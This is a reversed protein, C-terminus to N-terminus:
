PVYILPDDAGRFGAGQRGDPGQATLEAINGDATKEIIVGGHNQPVALIGAPFREFLDGPGLADPGALQDHAPMVEGRVMGSDNEHIDIGGGASQHLHTKGHGATDAAKQFRFLNGVGEEAVPIQMGERFAESFAVQRKDFPADTKGRERLIGAKGVQDFVTDPPFLGTGSM